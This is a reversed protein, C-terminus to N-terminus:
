SPSGERDGGSLSDLIIIFASLELMITLMTNASLRSHWIYFGAESSGVTFRLDAMRALQEDTRRHPDVNRSKVNDRSSASVAESADDRNIDSFNGDDIDVDPNTSAYTVARSTKLNAPSCAQM